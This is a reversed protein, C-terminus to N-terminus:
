FIRRTMDFKKTIIALHLVTSGSIDQHSLDCESALLYSLIDTHDGAMAQQLPAMNHIGPLDVSMTYNEDAKRNIIRAKETVNLLFKFTKLDGSNIAEHM